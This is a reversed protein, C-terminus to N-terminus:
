RTCAVADVGFVPPSAGSCDVRSAPTVVLEKLARLDALSSNAAAQAHERAADGLGDRRMWRGLEILALQGDLLARDVEQALELWQERPADAALLKRFRESWPAIRDM